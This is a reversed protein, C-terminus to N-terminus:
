LLESIDLASIEKISKGIHKKFFDGLLKCFGQDDLALCATYSESEFEMWLFLRGASIENYLTVATLVGIEGTRVQAPISTTHVWNPPWHSNGPVNLQPHDRLQLIPIKPPPAKEDLEKLRDHLEIVERRSEASRSRLFQAAVEDFRKELQERTLNKISPFRRM